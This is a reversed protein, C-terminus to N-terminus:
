YAWVCSKNRPSHLNLIIFKHWTPPLMHRAFDINLIFIPIVNCKQRCVNALSTKRAFNLWIKLLFNEDFSFNMTKERTPLDVSNHSPNSLSSIRSSLPPTYFLLFSFTFTTFIIILKNYRISVHRQDPIHM